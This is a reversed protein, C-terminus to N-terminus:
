SRVEGESGEGRVESGQGKVEGGAAGEGGETGEHRQAETGRDVGEAGMGGKEYRRRIAVLRDFGRAAEEGHKRRILERESLGEEGGGNLGSAQSGHGVRAAEVAAVAAAALDGAGVEVGRGEEGLREAAEGRRRLELALLAAEYRAVFWPKRMWNELSRWTRGVLALMEEVTRGGEQVMRLFRSQASSMHTERVKGM